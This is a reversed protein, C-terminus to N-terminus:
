GFATEGVITMTLGAMLDNTHMSKGGEPGGLRGLMTAVARNMVAMYQELLSRSFLPECAARVAAWTKGRCALSCPQNLNPACQVTPAPPCPECAQQEVAWEKGRCALLLRSAHKFESKLRASCLCLLPWESAPGAAFCRYAM